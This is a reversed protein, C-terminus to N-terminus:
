PEAMELKEKIWRNNRIVIRAPVGLVTCNDPVSAIVLSNAGVVVNNGIVVDGFIKCGAALYVNNGLRPPPRLKERMIGRYPRIHGVNAGQFVVCNEGIVVDSIFVAWWNHIVFGKGIQARSSIYIQTCVVIAVNALWYPLKLAVRLVPNRVSKHIWSGYRYVIVAITGPELLARLTGTLPGMDQLFWRRKHAIDTRINEFLM